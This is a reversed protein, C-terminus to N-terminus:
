VTEIGCLSCTKASFRNALAFLGQADDGFKAPAYRLRTLTRREPRRPRSNSDRRGSWKKLLFTREEVFHFCNNFDRHERTALLFPSKAHIYLSVTM